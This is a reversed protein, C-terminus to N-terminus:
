NLKRDYLVKEGAQVFHKVIADRRALLAEIENTGLYNGMAKKVVDADLTKLKALLHRDINTLNGPSKLDKQWRFARTHDIMWIRWDRTILLNGLNRDTNYILQDFVRVVWMQENWRLSDPPAIKKKLRANEDMLVDDVWWTYSADKGDYRRAVTAPIMNIDLLKDLDYAALNFRWTDRFNFEVARDTQFTARSEDVTQVSADHTTSGDTLTVRVTGTVGTSVFQRKVIRAQQLFVEMDGRSLVTAPATPGPSTQGALAAVSAAVFLAAPLTVRPACMM